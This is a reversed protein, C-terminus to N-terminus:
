RKTLMDICRRPGHTVEQGVQIYQPRAFASAMRPWRSRRHYCSVVMHAVFGVDVNVAVIRM